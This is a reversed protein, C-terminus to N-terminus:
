WDFDDKKSKWTSSSTTVNETFTTKKQKQPSQPRSQSFLQPLMFNPYPLYPYDAFGFLVQIIEKQKEKIYKLDVIKKESRLVGGERYTTYM